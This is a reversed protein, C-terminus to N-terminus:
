DGRSAQAQRLYAQYDPAAKTARIAQWYDDIAARHRNYFGRNVMLFLPTLHFPAPLMDIQGKFHREILPAAEADRAVVAAVRGLALKGLNQETTKAGDDVAVGQKRLLAAHFFGAQVGVQGGAQGHALGTFRKGDWQVGSGTRRYAMFPIVALTHSPDPEGGLMPVAGYSLREPLYTAVLADVEGSQLQALCRARPAFSNDIVIAAGQAARRLLEQTQGSGDPMTYPAFPRDFTCLRLHLAAAHGAHCAILCLGAALLRFM